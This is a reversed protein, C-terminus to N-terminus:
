FLFNEEILQAIRPQIFEWTREFRVNLNNDWIKAFSPALFVAFIELIILLNDKEPYNLLSSMKELLEKIHKEELVPNESIYTTYLTFMRKNSDFAQKKCRTVEWLWDHLM